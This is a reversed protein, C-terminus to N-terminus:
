INRDGKDKFQSLYRKIETTSKRGFKEGLDISGINKIDLTYKRGDWRIIGTNKNKMNIITLCDPKSDNEEYIYTIEDDGMIKELVEVLKNNNM